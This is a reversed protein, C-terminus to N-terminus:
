IMGLVTDKDFVCNMVQVLCKELYTLEEIAIKVNNVIVRIQLLSVRGKSVQWDSFWTTMADHTLLSRASVQANVFRQMLVYM